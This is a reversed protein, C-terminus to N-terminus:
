GADSNKIKKRLTVINYGNEYRYEFSDVSKKIFYIGLGGVRRDALSPTFDPDPVSFPDFFPGNDSIIVLAYNGEAEISLSIEPEPTGKMGYSFINTLIEDVALNLFYSDKLQVENEDCFVDILDKIRDLENIDFEIRTFM